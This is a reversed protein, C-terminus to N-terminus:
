TSATSSVAELPNNIEHAVSAALRGAAALKGTRRLVDQGRKQDTLDALFAVTQRDILPAEPNLVATGVLAQVIAGAKTRLSVEVPERADSLSEAEVLPDPVVIQDFTLAGGDIDGRRYGLLNLLASNGYVIRQESDSLLLGIPM